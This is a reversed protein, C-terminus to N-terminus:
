GRRRAVAFIEACLEPLDDGVSYLADCYAQSLADMGANPLPKLVIGKMSVVELGAGELDARLDAFDYYRYHGVQHDLEGLEKLDSIKGMAKGVRRHLSTANPVTLAFPTGPGLLERVRGLFVPPLEVHELVGAAVVLDFPGRVPSAEFLGHEITVGPRTLRSVAREYFARAPEIAHVTEFSDALYATISGEGCGIELARRRSPLPEVVDALRLLRYRALRGNFGDEYSHVRAIEDLRRQHEPSM